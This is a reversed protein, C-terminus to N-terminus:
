RLSDKSILINNGDALATQMLRCVEAHHENNPDLVNTEYPNYEIIWGDKDTIELVTLYGTDKNADVLEKNEAKDM